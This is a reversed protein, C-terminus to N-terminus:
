IALTLGLYPGSFASQHDIGDVLGRDDLWIRRWGGRIGVPGLGIALGASWDFQTYPFPTVHVAGEIGLPGLVGLIGSLGIGPGATVLDPAFATTLGAEVRLRGRPAAIVAYTGYINLLQIDDATSFEDRGQIHIASLEGSIGFREGELSMNIGVAGSSGDSGVQGQAGFTTRLGPPGSPEVPYGPAAYYGPAYYYPPPYPYGPYPYSEYWWAYRHRWGAYPSYYSPYNTGHTAGVNSPPNTSPRPPTAKGFQANAPAVSLLFLAVAILTSAQLRGNSM